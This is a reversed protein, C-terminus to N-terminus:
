FPVKRYQSTVRFPKELAGNETTLIRMKRMYLICISRLRTGNCFARFSEIGNHINSMKTDETEVKLNKGRNM